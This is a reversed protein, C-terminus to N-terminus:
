QGHRRAKSGTNPPQSVHRERRVVRGRPTHRRRETNM